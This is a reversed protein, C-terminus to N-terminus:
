LLSMGEVHKELKNRPSNYSSPAISTIESISARLVDIEEALVKVLQQSNEYQTELHESQSAKASLLSYQRSSLRYEQVREDYSVEASVSNTNRSFSRSSESVATMGPSGVTSPLNERGSTRAIFLEKEVQTIRMKAKGLEDGNISVNELKRELEEMKMMSNRLEVTKAHLQGRLDLVEDMGRMGISSKRQDGSRLEEIIRQCEDIDGQALNNADIEDLLQNDLDKGRVIAQQLASGLTQIDAQLSENVKDLKSVNEALDTNERLIVGLRERTGTSELGSIQKALEDFKSSSEEAAFRAERVVVDKQEELELVRDRLTQIYEATKVGEGDIGEERIIMKDLQCSLSDVKVLLSDREETLTDLERSMLDVSGLRSDALASTEQLKIYMEKVESGREESVLEVSKFEGRLNELMDSIDNKEGLINDYSVTLESLERQKNEIVLNARELDARVIEHQSIAADYQQRYGQDLVDKSATSERREVDYSDEMTSITGQLESIRTELSVQVDRLGVIEGESAVQQSSLSKELGAGLQRFKDTELLLSKMEQKTSSYKESIDNKEDVLCSLQSRAQDREDVAEVLRGQIEEVKKELGMKENVIADFRETYDDVDGLAQDKEDELEMLRASLSSSSATVDRNESELTSLRSKLSNFQTTESLALAIRDQLELIRDEAQSVKDGAESIQSELSSITESMISNSDVLTSNDSKVSEMDSSMSDREEKLQDREAVCDRLEGKIKEYEVELEKFMEGSEEREKLLVAKYQDCEIRLDDLKSISDRRQVEFTKLEQLEMSIRSWNENAQDREFVCGKLESSVKEYEVELEKFMEASDEREKLLVAKYQDCEIQLDDLKSISERGVTNLEQLEMSIRAHDEKMQDREVVCDRLEGKIKEYEVELEKFMEGNEEREKLLVAKYQNCEIQLDDLKSISDRHHTEFTKLEQLEISIRSWNENAQDREFVCGKLESSVKEYEVELEKFMEQSEDREKMLVSKYQDCEIQLDDLKLISDKLESQVLSESDNRLSELEFQTKEYQVTM